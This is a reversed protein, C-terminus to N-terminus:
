PEAKRINYKEKTKGRGREKKTLVVSPPLKITDQHIPKYGATDFFM